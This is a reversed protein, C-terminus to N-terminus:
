WCIITEIRIGKNIKVAVVIFSAMKKEQHRWVLHGERGRVEGGVLMQRLNTLAVKINIVPLEKQVQVVSVTSHFYSWRNYNSKM